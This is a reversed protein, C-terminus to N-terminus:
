SVHIAGIKTTLTLRDSDPIGDVTVTLPHTGETLASLEAVWGDDSRTISAEHGAARVRVSPVGPVPVSLRIKVQSPQGAPVVDDYDLGIRPAEGGLLEDSTGRAHAPLGPLAYEAVQNLAARNEALGDHRENQVHRDRGGGELWFPIAGLKSVTGDGGSWKHPLWDPDDRFVGLKKGDLECRSLTAHDCSYYLSWHGARREDEEILRAIQENIDHHTDHAHRAKQQFDGLDLDLDHPHLTEDGCTIAGYKPLLDYTSHWQRLVETVEPLRIGAISVGNVLWDLAKVAGRYPTGLTIIRETVRHGGEAWWRAAVLGGMSHAVVIVKRKEGELRWAIERDLRAVADAVSHRFDYPFLVLSAKPNRQERPHATVVEDPKLELSHLLRRVTGDYGTIIQWPATAFSPFLEVPTLPRDLSLADPDFLRRAVPLLGPGWVRRGQDDALVSGGIGPIVVVLHGLAAM